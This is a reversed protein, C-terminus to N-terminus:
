ICNKALPFIYKYIEDAILERGKQSIHVSDIFYTENLIDSIDYILNKKKLLIDKTKTIILKTTKDSNKNSIPQYFALFNTTKCKNSKVVKKSLVKAKELVNIYNMLLVQIWEESGYNIKKKIQDLDSIKGTKKEYEAYISSYKLLIYKLKSLENRIWFNFPYGPRPDYLYTQITENFGGYFIVFDFKLNSYKLLRHVHQNHNSSVSSFNYSNIKINEKAFNKEILNIIPPDGNYGTSGGFFGISIEKENAQIFNGGKFGYSNHDKYKPKGAFMDYPSPSREYIEESISSPFGHGFFKFIYFDVIILSLISITLSLIFNKIYKGFIFRSCFLFFYYNFLVVFIILIVTLIVINIM